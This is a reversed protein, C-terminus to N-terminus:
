EPAGEIRDDEICRQTQWQSSWLTNTAVTGERVTLQVVGGRGQVASVPTPSGGEVCVRM